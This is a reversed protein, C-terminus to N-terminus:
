QYLEQSTIKQFITKRVDSVNIIMCGEVNQNDDLIEYFLKMKLDSDSVDGFELRIRDELVSSLHFKDSYDIYDVNPLIGTQILIDLFTAIYDYTLAGNEFVITEMPEAQYVNPLKVHLFREFSSPDSRKELVRLDRDFSIWTGDGLDAYMVNQAETVTIKVKFFGYSIKVDRVYCCTTYFDSPVGDFFIPLMEDGRTIGVAEIIEEDSYIANGEVEIRSVRFLPLILLLVGILLAASGIVIMGLKLKQLKKEHKRISRTHAPRKEQASAFLEKKM